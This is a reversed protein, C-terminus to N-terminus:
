RADVWKDCVTVDRAPHFVPVLVKGAPIITTYAGRREMRTAVCDHTAEWHAQDHTAEWHAQYM